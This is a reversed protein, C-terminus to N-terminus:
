DDIHYIMVPIDAHMVIEKSVSKHWLSDWFSRHRAVVAILDIDHENAFRQMGSWASQEAMISTVEYPLSAALERMIKDFYSENEIRTADDGTCVHLVYLKSTFSRAFDAMLQLTNCNASDKNGAYMMRHFPKGSAKSPVVLVPCHAQRAVASSISGMFKDVIGYEGSAGMVIMDYDKKSRSTIEEVAMGVEIEFHVPVKEIDIHGMDSSHGSIFREMKRTLAKEHEKMLEPDITAPMGAFGEIPQVVIYTHFATVSAGYHAAIMRAYDLAKQSAASFDTPVLIRSVTNM